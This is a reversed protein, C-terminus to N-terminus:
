PSSMREIAPQLPTEATTSRASVGLKGAVLDAVREAMLRYTTLKGGVVSVLGEVGDRQAHDIVFFTRSAQRSDAHLEEEEASSSPEYLPRVGAWFRMIDASRIAPLYQEVETLIREIEWSDVRTDGPDDTPVSTTGAIGMTGLPLFIDGDSPKRLRNIATNVWRGNFGVMAGRRLLMDLTVGALGAVRGSWPGAANVVLRTQVDVTDGTRLHRLRAVDVRGDEYKFDEVRHYTLFTAGRAKASIRLSQVLAISDCTADPVEFARQVDRSLAPERRLAEAPDIETTPIGVRSCAEVWREAFSADDGPILVFLGGTDELTHPAIHRVTQNEEICERASEPDTVAYRGGSHLLGHYRGSTGTGMEGMEALAVRLGRLTLDWAIGAGTAGGGIVLVDVDMM